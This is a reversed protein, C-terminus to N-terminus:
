KLDAKQAQYFSDVHKELAERAILLSTKMHEQRALGEAVVSTFNNIGIFRLVHNVYPTLFDSTTGHYCGGACSIFMVPRDALLGIPGQFTYKFTKGAILVLDFYAKLPAPVTFNHMPTAIVIADSREVEDILTDSLTKLAKAVPTTATGADIVELSDAHIYPIPNKELDRYVPMYQRPYSSELQEVFHQSLARSHSAKLNPSVNIILLNKTRPM